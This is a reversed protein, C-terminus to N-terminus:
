YGKVWFISDEDICLDVLELLEEVVQKVQDRINEWTIRWKPYFTRIENLFDIGAMQKLAYAELTEPSEIQTIRSFQDALHNRLNIIESGTFPTPTYYEYEPNSLEFAHQFLGFVAANLYRSKGTLGEFGNHDSSFSFEVLNLDESSYLKIKM